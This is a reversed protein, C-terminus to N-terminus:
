LCRDTWLPFTGSWTCGGPVLYVGLGPVGGQLGPVGGLGSVGGSGPVGGPVLHSPWQQPCYADSQFANKYKFLFVVFNKYCCIITDVIRILTRGINLAIELSFYTTFTLKDIAPRVFVKKSSQGKQEETIKTKSRMKVRHSHARLSHESQALALALAYTKNLTQQNNGGAFSTQPLTINESAHTMRDVTPSHRVLHMVGRPWACM